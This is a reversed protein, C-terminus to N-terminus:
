GPTGAAADDDRMQRVMWRNLAALGALVLGLVLFSLVRILGSLGSIDFVYVKAVTLAVAAIAIRRLMTSRRVVALILLGSAITLMAVTYSYLEGDTVGPVTLDPGRWLRRIELGLWLAAEAAALAGLGLRLGAALHTMRWTVAALLAAPLAYAVALSDFVPPGLVLGGALPLQATMSLALLVLGIGGLAHGLGSRALRLGDDIQMRWLQTAAVSLWVLALLAYGWHSDLSGHERLIRILVVTAFVASASWAGSGTVIRAVRRGRTGALHFAVALLAITGGFATAVAGLPAGLAWDIGPDVVLRYGCVVAGVQVFVALPAIGHRRDLWAAVVVVTAFAVTLAAKTLVISLAFSLMVLAALTYLAVRVPWAADRALSREALGAFVAAVVVVHIAWVLDGLGASPEWWRALVFILAPAFLAAGGAWGAAFGHAESRESRWAALATVVLGFATLATITRSPTDLPDALRLFASASLDWAGQAWVIWLLALAVPLALDELAPSRPLLALGTLAAALVILSLAFSGASATSVVTAIGILILVAAAALRTPFESWGAPGLRHLARFSLAGGHEPVPSLGPVVTAAVALVAGYTLLHVGSGMTAAHILAAGVTPLALSLVSVWASRKFADVGLGVCAILAFYLILWAPDESRGGVIFPAAVSGVIGIATLFQGCVWGLLMALAAVAVLGAFATEPGILDYLQRAAVIASFLTVIGAGSLTSPLFATLDADDDGGRRRVWEGAAILAAGLALSCIVRVRPSLIGKDIGYQVLFVGAFTLSLAAVAYVWNDRLWGALAAGRGATFVYAEPPGDASAPATAPREPGSVTPVRSRAALSPREQVPPAETGKPTEPQPATSDAARPAGQPAPGEGALRGVLLGRIQALDRKLRHNSYLLYGVAFPLTLYIIGALVLFFNEDM